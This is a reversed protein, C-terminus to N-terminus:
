GGQGKRWIGWAGQELAQGTGSDQASCPVTFAQSLHSAQAPEVSGVPIVRLREAPLDVCVLNCTM